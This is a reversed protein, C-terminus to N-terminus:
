LSRAAAKTETLSLLRERHKTLASSGITRRTCGLTVAARNKNGNTEVLKKIVEYKQQENMSLEVKRIKDVEM